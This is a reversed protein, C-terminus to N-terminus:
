LYYKQSKIAYNKHIIETEMVFDGNYDVYSSMEKNLSVYIYLPEFTVCNTTSGLWIRPFKKSINAIKCNQM